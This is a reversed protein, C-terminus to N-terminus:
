LFGNIKKALLVEEYYLVDLADRTEELTVALSEINYKLGQVAAQYDQIRRQLKELAETQEQRIIEQTTM